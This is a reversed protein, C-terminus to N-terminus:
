RPVLHWCRFCQQSPQNRKEVTETFCINYCKEAKVRRSYRAQGSTTIGKATQINSVIWGGVIGFCIVALIILLTEVVPDIKKKKDEM